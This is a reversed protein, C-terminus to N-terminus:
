ATASVRAPIINAPQEPMISFWAKSQQQTVLQRYHRFVMAPSNGAELAVKAADQIEALRYSVFSHRLANSKWTIGSKEAADRQTNYFNFHEGSWVQGSPRAYHTLWAALNDSIPALRRSATKSKGASVEIFREALHIDSWDLREIEASRLGAFAGIAIASIIEPEANALISSIEDPSYIEIASGVDKPPEIGDLVGHDKPLYMRAEAFQFLTRISAFQNKFTRPEINQKELYCRVDSPTISILPCRFAKAFAGCRYGLDQLYRRSLKANRKADLMEDLVEQVTKRPMNKLNRKAYDKAAEVVLDGDLIKFAEAFHHVATYLEVGTPKLITLLQLYLARDQGTLKLAESEGSMLKKVAADAENKAKQPDAYAKRFRRGGWRYDVSYVTGSKTNIEFVRVAASGERAVYYAKTKKDRKTTKM